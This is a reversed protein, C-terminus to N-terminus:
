VPLDVRQLVSPADARWRLAQARPPTASADWDSLVLRQLGEGVAHARPAHTHGHILLSCGSHALLAHAANNDVDVYVAGSAKRAESAHRLGRAITRREALPKALFESQWKESRVQTRFQQYDVDALCLADGHSLLACEGAFRLVTPDALLQAQCSAAYATGLLFDRNGHMLYLAMRQAAQRMVQACAQAFDADEHPATPQPQAGDDGVWVEFWDGLIFVADAPTTQMYHAWARQTARESPQLHLDSIFDICQWHAPAHLVPADPPTLPTM